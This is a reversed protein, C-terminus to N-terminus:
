YRLAIEAESLLSQVIARLIKFEKSPVVPLFSGSAKSLYNEISDILRQLQLDFGKKATKQWEEFEKVATIKQRIDITASYDLHTGAVFLLSEQLEGGGAKSTLASKFFLILAKFRDRDLDTLEPTTKDAVLTQEIGDDPSTIDPNLARDLAHDISKLHGWFDAYPGTNALANPIMHEYRRKRIDNIKLIISFILFFM